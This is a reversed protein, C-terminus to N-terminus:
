RGRVRPLTALLPEGILNELDSPGKIRPDRWDAVVALVLGLLLGLAVGVAGFSAFSPYAPRAPPTARGAVRYSGGWAPAVRLATEADTWERLLQEYQQQARAHERRASELSASARATRLGPTRRPQPKREPEPPLALLSQEIGLVEAEALELDPSAPAPAPTSQASAAAAELRRIRRRLAEVDPHEDTYRQRLSDLEARAGALEASPGSPATPRAQTDREQRLADARARAAELRATLVQREGALREQEPIPPPLATPRPPPVDHLALLAAERAQLENRADALRGELERARKASRRESEEGSDKAVREALANASAAAAEASSQTSVILLAGQPTSRVDFGRPSLDARGLQTIVGSLRAPDLAQLRLARLRRDFTTAGEDGPAAALAAEARYRPPVFWAALLGLLL